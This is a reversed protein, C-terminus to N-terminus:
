RVVVPVSEVVTFDIGRVVGAGSPNERTLAALLSPGASAAQAVEQGWVTDHQGTLTVALGSRTASTAEVTTQTAAAGVQTPTSPHILHSIASRVRSSVERPPLPQPNLEVAEGTGRGGVIIIGQRQLADPRSFVRTHDPLEVMVEDSLAAQLPTKPPAPHVSVSGTWGSPQCVVETVPGHWHYGPALTATVSMAADIPLDVLLYRRRYHTDDDEARLMSLTGVPRQDVFLGAGGVPVTAPVVFDSRGRLFEAVLEAFRDQGGIMTMFRDAAGARLEQAAAPQDAAPLAALATSVAAAAAASAPPSVDAIAAATPSSTVTTWSSTRVTQLAGTTASALSFASASDSVLSGLELEPRNSPAGLTRPWSIIGEASGSRDFGVATLLLDLRNSPAGPLSLGHLGGSGGDLRDVVAELFWYGEAALRTLEANVPGLADNAYPAFNMGAIFQELRGKFNDGTFFGFIDNVMSILDAVFNHSDIVPAVVTIEEFGSATLPQTTAPLAIRYSLELGFAFSFRPDAYSGFVSPTTSTAEIYNGGTLIHVRLDGNDERSVSVDIDTAVDTTIDYLTVGPSILDGTGLGQLLALLEPRHDTWASQASDRIVNDFYADATSQGGPSGDTRTALGIGGAIPM